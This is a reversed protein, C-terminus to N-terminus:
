SFTIKGDKYSLSLEGKIFAEAVKGYIEYRWGKMFDPKIDSAQEIVFKDIDKTSAILKAAVEYQNAITKLLLKMLDALNQNEESIAIKIPLKPMEALDKNLGDKVLELFQDGFKKIQKPSLKRLDKIQKPSNPQVVSLEYVAEDSLIRSRNKNQNSAEIERWVAITKAVSLQKQNHRKIKLKRWGNEPDFKYRSPDILKIVEEEIWSERKKNLMAQHLTEYVKRLYIVDDAAYNKQKQSLPRKKWNTLQIEKNLKVRCIKSVLSQYGINEGYGVCMAIIQTDVLPTPIMQYCDYFIELDQQGSHCIKIINPNKFIDILPSHDSFELVDILATQNEGAVQILCLEPKYTNERIFETDFTIYTDQEIEKCFEKLGNLDKIYKM